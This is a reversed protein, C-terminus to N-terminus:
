LEAVAAGADESVVTTAPSGWGGQKPLLPQLGSFVYARTHSFLALLFFLRYTASFVRCALWSRSVSLEPIPARLRSLHCGPPKPHIHFCLTQPFLPKYATSFLAHPALAGLSPHDSRNHHMANGDRFFPFA